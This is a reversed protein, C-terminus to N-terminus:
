ANVSETRIFHGSGLWAALAFILYLAQSAFQGQLLLQMGIGLGLSPVVILFTRFIREFGKKNPLPWLKSFIAGLAVGSGVVIVFQLIVQPTPFPWNSMYHGILYFIEVFLTIGVVKKIAFLNLYPHLIYLGVLIGLLILEVLM